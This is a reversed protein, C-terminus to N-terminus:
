FNRLTYTLLIFSGLTVITLAIINSLAFYKLNNLREDPLSSADYFLVLFICLSTLIGASLLWAFFYHLITFSPVSYLSSISSYRTLIQALAPVLGLIIAGTKTIKM